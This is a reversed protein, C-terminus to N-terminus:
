LVVHDRNEATYIILMEGQIDKLSEYSGLM